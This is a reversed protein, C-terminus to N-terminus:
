KLKGYNLVEYDGQKIKCSKSKLDYTSTERKMNQLTGLSTYSIM